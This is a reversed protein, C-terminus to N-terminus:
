MLAPLQVGCGLLARRTAHHHSHPENCGVIGGIRDGCSRVQSPTSNKSQPGAHKFHLAENARNSRMPVISRRSKCHAAAHPFPCLFLSFPTPPGHPPTARHTAAANRQTGRQAAGADVTAGRELAIGAAAAEHADRVQGRGPRAGACSPAPCRLWRCEGGASGVACAAVLRRSRGCVRPVMFSSKRNPLPFSRLAGSDSRSV